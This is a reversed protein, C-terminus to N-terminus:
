KKSLESKHPIEEPFARCCIRLSRNHKEEVERVSEKTMTAPKFNGWKEVLL